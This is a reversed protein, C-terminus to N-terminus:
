NTFFDEGHVYVLVEQVLPVPLVLLVLLVRHILFSFLVDDALGLHKRLFSQM